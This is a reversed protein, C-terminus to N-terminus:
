FNQSAIELFKKNTSVKKDELPDFFTGANLFLESVM